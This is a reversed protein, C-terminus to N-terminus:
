GNADEDDVTKGSGANRYYQQELYEVPCFRSTKDELQCAAAIDLLINPLHTEPNSDPAVVVETPVVRQIFGSATRNPIPPQCSDLSSPHAFFERGIVQARASMSARVANPQVVSLFPRGRKRILSRRIQDAM